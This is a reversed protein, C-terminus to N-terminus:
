RGAAYDLTQCVAAFGGGSELRECQIEKAAYGTATARASSHPFGRDLTPRGTWESPLAGNRGRRRESLGAFRRSQRSLAPQADSPRPHLSRIPPRYRKASSAALAIASAWGACAARCRLGPIETAAREARHSGRSRGFGSQWYTRPRSRIFDFFTGDLGSQGHRAPAFLLLRWLRWKSGQVQLSSRRNSRK